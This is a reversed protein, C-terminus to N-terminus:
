FKYVNICSKFEQSIQEGPYYIRELYLGSPPATFRAPQPNHKKFFSEVEQIHMKNRGVEAMIGAMRRVMKWLFHSGVIHIFISDEVEHVNVFKIEVKTSKENPDDDGFSRYDKFGTYLQAIERMREADLKDKIWWVYNKGFSTRRRSIHFVYSRAIADHRAHFKPHVSEAKLINIDYPLLDNMSIRLREPPLDTKVDLHAVQGLAHVGRDTRGSGYVEFNETRFVERCVEFLKGQLTPQGKQVQWGNYRTGEYELTLKFRAM